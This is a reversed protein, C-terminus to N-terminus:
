NFAFIIVCRYPVPINYFNSQVTFKFHKVMQALHVFAGQNSLIDYLWTDLIAIQVSILLSTPCESISRTMVTMMYYISRYM